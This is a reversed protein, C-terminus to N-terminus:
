ASAFWGCVRLWRVVVAGLGGSEIAQAFLFVVLLDGEMTGFGCSMVRSVERFRVVWWFFFGLM